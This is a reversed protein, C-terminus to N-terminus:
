QDKRVTGKVVQGPNSGQTLRDLTKYVYRRSLGARAAEEEADRISFTNGLEM